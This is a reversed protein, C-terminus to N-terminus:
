SAPASTHRQERHLEHFAHHLGAWAHQVYDIRIKPLTMAQSFAGDVAAPDRCAFCDERRWQQALLFRIAPEIAALEGDANEGAADALAASAATAELLGATPTNYPPFLNGFGHGGLYARDVHSNDDLLFRSQYRVYQRCFREYAAHRHHSLAARAALCHWNEETFFFAAATHNWYPGSVHDMARQVSQRTQEQGPWSPAPDQTGELLVLAMIAQGYAYLSDPAPLPTGDFRLRAAFGGDDRQLYLLTHALEGILADFKPGVRPRCALFAILPLATSGLGAVRDRSGVLAIHSGVERRRGALAALARSAAERVRTTEDGLECLALTTGAQRPLHLRARMQKGTAPNMAYNFVGDEQQSRLIYAQARRTADRVSRATSEPTRPHLRQLRELRRDSGVRFSETAIVQLQDPAPSRDGRRWIPRAVADYLADLDTGLRLDPIQPIPRFQSFANRAVLQWPALCERDLCIGEAGGRIALPQAWRPFLPGRLSRQSTVLDLKAVAHAPLEDIVQAIQRPLDDARLARCTLPSSQGRGGDHAILLWVESENAPPCTAPHIAVTAPQRPAAPSLDAEVQANVEAVLRDGDIRAIPHARASDFAVWAAVLLIVTAGGGHRRGFRLGPGALRWARMSMPLTFLVLTGTAALAAAAMGQGVHGYIAVLYVATWGLGLGYVALMGASLWLVSRWAWQRQRRHRTTTAFALWAHGGALALSLATFVGAISWPLTLGAWAFVTAHIIALVSSVPDRSPEPSSVPPRNM